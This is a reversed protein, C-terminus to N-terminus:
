ASMLNYKLYIIEFTHQRRVEADICSGEEFVVLLLLFFLIPVVTGLVEGGVLVEGIEILQLEEAELAGVLVGIANEADDALVKGTSRGSRGRSM